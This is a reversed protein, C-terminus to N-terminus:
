PGLLINLERCRTEKATGQLGDSLDADCALRDYEAQDRNDRGEQAAREREADARETQAAAERTAREAAEPGEGVCIASDDVDYHPDNPDCTIRSGATRGPPSHDGADENRGEALPHVASAAVPLVRELM